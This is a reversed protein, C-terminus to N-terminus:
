PPSVLRALLLAPKVAVTTGAGLMPAALTEGFVHRSPEASGLNLRLACTPVVMLNLSVCGAVALSVKEWGFVPRLTLPRQRDNVRAFRRLGLHVIGM